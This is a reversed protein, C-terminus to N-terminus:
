ATAGITIGSSALTAGGDLALTGASITTNGSYTNANSLKLLGNGTKTLGGGTSSIIGSLETAGTNDVQLTRTTSGLSVAGSLTLNNAGNVVLPTANFVIANGVTRAAGSAFVKGSSSGITLTGTGIPGSTLSPPTGASNIGFGITGDNLSTGGSWT